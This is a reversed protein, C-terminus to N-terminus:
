LTFIVFCHQKVKQNSTQENFYGIKLTRFTLDLKNTSDCFLTQIILVSSQSLVFNLCLIRETVLELDSM